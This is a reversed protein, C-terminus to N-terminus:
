QGYVVCSLPVLLHEHPLVPRATSSLKPTTNYMEVKCYHSIYKSILFLLGYFVREARKMDDSCHVANYSFWKLWLTLLRICLGCYM